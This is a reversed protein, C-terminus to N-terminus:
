RCTCNHIHVKSPSLLHPLLFLLLPSLTCLRHWEASCCVTATHQLFAFGWSRVDHCHYQSCPGRSCSFWGQLGVLLVPFCLFLCYSLCVCMYVPLSITLSQSEPLYISVCLPIFLTVSNHVCHGYRWSYVLFLTSTGGRTPHTGVHVIYMFVMYCSFNSPCFKPLFFAVVDSQCIYKQHNLMQSHGCGYNVWRHCAVLMIFHQWQSCVHCVEWFSISCHQCSAHLLFSGCSTHLTM